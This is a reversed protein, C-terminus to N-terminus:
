CAVVSYDLGDVCAVTESVLNCWKKLFGPKAWPTLPGETETSLSATSGPEADHGVATEAVSPTSLSTRRTSSTTSESSKQAPHTTMPDEPASIHAALMSAGDELAPEEDVQAFRDSNSPTQYINEDYGLSRAFDTTSPDFGRLLQYQRLPDYADNSWSYSCSDQSISFTTPLGFEQCLDDSLPSHG